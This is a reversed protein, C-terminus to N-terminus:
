CMTITIDYSGFPNELTGASHCKLSGNIVIGNNLTITFKYEKYNPFEGARKWYGGNEVRIDNEGESNIVNEIVNFANDVGEWHEDSYLHSTIKEQIIAKYIRNIYKKKINSNSIENIVTKVSETIFNKFQSESLSIYKKNKSESLDCFLEAADIPEIERGIKKVCWDYIKDEANQFFHAFSITKPAEYITEDDCYIVYVDDVVDFDINYQKLEEVENKSYGSNLLIKYVKNIVPKIFYAWQEPSENILKYNSM